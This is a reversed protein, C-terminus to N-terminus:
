RVLLSSERALLLAQRLSPEVVATAAEGLRGEALRQLALAEGAASGVRQHLRAAESLHAVADSGRGALLAAEGLVLTAFAEGREAGNHRATDRLRRAFEILRDDPQEGYLYHEVVCLHGDHVSAALQPARSTDLLDAEIQHQWKGATHAVLACLGAADALEAVLGGALALRRAENAHRRAAALEGRALALYGEAIRLRLREITSTPRLGALAAAATDADGLVVAARAQRVRLARRRRGRAAAIAESFAALTSPGGCAFLCDARLELLSSRRPAFALAQEVLARADAVAGVATADRAARELWPVADTGAGADVLHQGIRDPPGGHDILVAAAKRHASRRQAEPLSALLAARLLVHRFRFEAGAEVVLGARVAAGLVTRADPEALGALAVLEDATFRVGAVAIRQLVPRVRPELAGLRAEIIEYVRRPIHLDGEPRVAAAPEEAFFPNGEALEHIRNVAADPVAEGAVRRVVAACAPASLPGLGIECAGQGALLSARMQAAAPVLQERRYALLVVIPECRTARGLYHALQVTTIDAEHLDDLLLVAGRGSAAAALVALVASLVPQRGRLGTESLSPAARGFLRALGERAPTPLAAELDPRQRLLRGMAETVAAFPAAGEARNTGGHAITWGRGAAEDLLAECFRTKGIGIEGTVLLAGGSAKAARDLVACGKALEAARGVLPSRHPLAQATPLALATWLRVSEPSPLLGLEALAARLRDCEQMAEHRRGAATLAGVHRRHAHEDAPDCGVLEAWRGACRLLDLHRRHLRDRPATLWEPNPDAPLLGEGYRAAVEAAAGPDGTRLAADAAAEFDEVDTSIEAGPWLLVLGGRLVVADPDGLMRRAHSAARHLNAFGAEPGLHSWLSEVVHDRSLRHRPAIALLALLDVARRPAGAATVSRSGVTASLPGLLRVYLRSRRAAPPPAAPAREAVAANRRM